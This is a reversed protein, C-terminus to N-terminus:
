NHTYENVHLGIETKRMRGRHKKLELVLVPWTCPWNKWGLITSDFGLAELGSSDLQSTGVDWGTWDLNTWGLGLAELNTTGRDSLTNLFATLTGKIIQKKVSKKM